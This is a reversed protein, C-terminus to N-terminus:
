VRFYTNNVFLLIYSSFEICLGPIIKNNHTDSCENSKTVFTYIADSGLDESQNFCVEDCQFLEKKKSLKPTM